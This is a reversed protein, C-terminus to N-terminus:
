YLIYIMRVKINKKLYECEIKEVIKNGDYDKMDTITKFSFLNLEEARKISLHASQIVKKVPILEDENGRLKIDRINFKKIFDNEIKILQTYPNKKIIDMFYARAYVINKLEETNIKNNIIDNKVKEEIIFIHKDFPLSHTKKLRFNEIYIIEKNIIKKYKIEASARGM